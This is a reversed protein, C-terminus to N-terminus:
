KHCTATPL